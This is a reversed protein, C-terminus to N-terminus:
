LFCSHHLQQSSTQLILLRTHFIYYRHNNYFRFPLSYILIFSRSLSNTIKYAIGSAILRIVQELMPNSSRRCFDVAFILFFFVYASRDDFFQVADAATIRGIFPTLPPICGYFCCYFISFCNWSDFNWFACKAFLILDDFVLGLFKTIFYAIFKRHIM